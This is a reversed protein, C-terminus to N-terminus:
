SNRDYYKGNDEYPVALFNQLYEDFSNNGGDTFEDAGIPILPKGDVEPFMEAAKKVAAEFGEPTTMDPSGIAKYIDKRVLFNQNSPVSSKNLFEQYTYSYNPYGYINGDAKTYWEVTEQKTETFFASDYEEALLNLAYVQGNDIMEQGESEWWGVTVLDPLTDSDIMSRIKEAESGKPVVFNIDVGTQKTIERSVLSEGWETDYWSYNIYWDLSVKEEKESVQENKALENWNKVMDTVYFLLALVIVASIILIIRRKKM